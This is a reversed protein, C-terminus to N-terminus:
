LKHPYDSKIEWGDYFILSTCMQPTDACFKLKNKRGQKHEGYPCFAKSSSNCMMKQANKPCILFAFRDKGYQNQGKSGDIDVRMDLCTGTKIYVYSGDAMKVLFYRSTDGEEQGDDMLMTNEIVDTYKLYKALYKNFFTLSGTRNAEGSIPKGDSGTMSIYEWDGAPGNELESMMIAQSMTSYFKKLRSVTETKKYNQVLMPLTLAAVVGIIGLTILVEALTFAVRKKATRLHACGVNQSQQHLLNCGVQSRGRLIYDDQVQKLIQGGTHEQLHDNQTESTTVAQHSDLRGRM